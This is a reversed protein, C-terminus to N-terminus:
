LNKGHCKKYKLGSGCPCPDNRGIKQGAWPNEDAPSPSITSPQPIDSLPKKGNLIDAMLFAEEKLRRLMPGLPDKTTLTPVFVESPYEAATFGRLHWLPLHNAFDALRKLGEEVLSDTIEEKGNGFAYSFFHLEMPVDDESCEGYKMKFFWLNFCLLYANERDLGVEQTLFDMFSDMVPNSVVPIQLGSAKVLEVLSFERVSDIKKSRNAIFRVMKRKNEWAYRSVFQMDEDEVTDLNEAWEMSDLLLSFQRVFEFAEVAEEDSGNKTFLKLYKRIEKQNVIGLYNALGEVVLEMSMRHYNPENELAWDIHPTLAQRLDEAITIVVIDDNISEMEAMGYMVMIPTLRDNARLIGDEAEDDKVKKIIDLDTRPLMLLLEEPHSLVHETYAKRIKSTGWKKDFDVGLNSSFRVLDKRQLKQVIQWLTKSQEM